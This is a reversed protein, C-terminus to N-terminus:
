RDHFRNPNGQFSTRRLERRVQHVAPQYQGAATRQQAPQFAQDRFLGTQGYVHRVIWQTCNGFAGPHHQVLEQWLGVLEDRQEPTARSIRSPAEM